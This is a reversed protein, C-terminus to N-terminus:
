RPGSGVSGNYGNGSMQNDIYGSVVATTGDIIESIFASRVIEKLLSGWVGGDVNKMEKADMEQVGLEKLNKM